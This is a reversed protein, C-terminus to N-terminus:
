VQHLGGVEQSGPCFAETIDGRYFRDYAAMIAAKRGEGMDLAAQEADVLKQLTNLLDPQRWIEGARHAERFADEHPFFLKKSYPWQKLKEESREIKRVTEEEIPYGEAM